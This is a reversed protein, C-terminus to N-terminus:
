TGQVVRAATACVMRQRPRAEGKWVFKKEPEPEPVSGGAPEPPAGACVARRDGCAENRERLGLM